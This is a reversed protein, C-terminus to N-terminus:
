WAEGTSSEDLRDSHMQEIWSNLALGNARTTLLVLVDGSEVVTDGRPVIMQSARRVLAVLSQAPLAIERVKRFCLARHAHAVEMEVQLTDTSDSEIADGARALIHEYESAMQGYAWLISERGLVGVLLRPNGPDVVPLTQVDHSSFVRLVDRLSNRSTCSLVSRTMIEDARQGAGAALIAREVDGRSVICALCGDAAVV